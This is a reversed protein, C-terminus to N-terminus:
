QGGKYRAEAESMFKQLNVVRKQDSPHTSFFDTKSKQGSAEAMRRWFNVAEQPDYGAMAMLSLGIRDAEAEHARSFPLMIGVESGLGYAAMAMDSTLASAGGLGLGVSLVSAGLGTM